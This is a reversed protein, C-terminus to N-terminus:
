GNTDPDTEQLISAVPIEFAWEGPMPASAQTFYGYLSAVRIDEPAYDWVYEIWDSVDDGTDDWGLMYPDKSSSLLQCRVDTYWSPYSGSAAHIRSDGLHHLQLHFQNNIFGIGTVLIDPTLSIDLPKTYDLVKEPKQPASGTGSTKRINEPIEVGEAAEAKELLSDPLTVMEVTEVEPNAAVFSLTDDASPVLLNFGFHWLQLTKREEKNNLLIYNTLDKYDTGPLRHGFNIYTHYSDDNILKGEKDEMSFLFWGESGKLLGGILELKAYENESFLHLPKMERILEPHEESLQDIVWPDALPTTAKVAAVQAPLRKPAGCAKCPKLSNYPENNAEALTFSAPLPRHTMSVAHCDPDAHYFQSVGPIYYLVTNGAAQSANDAISAASLGCALVAALILALLKKM